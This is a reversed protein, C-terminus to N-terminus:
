RGHSPTGAIGYGPSSTGAVARNFDGSGQSASPFYGPFDGSRHSNGGLLNQSFSLNEHSPAIMHRANHVGYESSLLQSNQPSVFTNYQVNCGEKKKGKFWPPYGILKYCDGRMHGKSNCHDCFANPNKYRPKPPQKAIWFATIDNGKTVTKMGMTNRDM